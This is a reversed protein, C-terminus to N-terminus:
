SAREAGDRDTGNRAPWSRGNLPEVSEIVEIRNQDTCGCVPGPLAPDHGRLVSAILTALPESAVVAFPHRRRSPKKLARQVREFAESCTEGEPPCVAVPSDRWQKYVRPHKRRVDELCMGEWLGHSLNALGDLEKFSVDLADAVERGTSLAPETPSAYVVDIERDALRDIIERVQRQGTESLPLDLGGQIRSQQDFDTEGPRIIFATSM